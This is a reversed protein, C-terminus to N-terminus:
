RIDIENDPLVVIVMGFAGLTALRQGFGTYSAVGISHYDQQLAALGGLGLSGAVPNIAEFRSKLAARHREVGPNSLLAAVLVVAVVLLSKMAKNM